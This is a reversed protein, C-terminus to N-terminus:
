VQLLQKQTQSAHKHDRAIHMEMTNMEAGVRMRVEKIKAEYEKLETKLQEIL